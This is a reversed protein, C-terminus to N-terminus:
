NITDIFCIGSSLIDKLIKKQSFEDTASKM